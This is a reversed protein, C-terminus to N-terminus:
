YEKLRRQPVFLYACFKWISKLFCRLSCKEKGCVVPKPKLHNNMPLRMLEDTIVKSEKSQPYITKCTICKKKLYEIIEGELSKHINHCFNKDKLGSYWNYAAEEYPTQSLSNFMFLGNQAEIRENNVDYEVHEGVIDFQITGDSHGLVAFLGGEKLQAFETFPLREFSDMTKESVGKYLDGYERKAEEDFESLKASERRYVEQISAHDPDIKNFSYISIFSEISHDEKSANQVPAGQRDTAFFLAKDIDTSYDIVPTGCGYHQLLALIQFDSEDQSRSRIFDMIKASGRVSRIADDIMKVYSSQDLSANTRVQASCFGMYKAENVGRFVFNKNKKCQSVFNWLEESTTIQVQHLFKNKEEISKYTNM